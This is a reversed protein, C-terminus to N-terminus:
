SPAQYLMSPVGGEPRFKIAAEHPMERKLIASLSTNRATQWLREEGLM